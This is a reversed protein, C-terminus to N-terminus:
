HSSTKLTAEPNVTLRKQAQEALFARGEQTWKLHWKTIGVLMVLTELVLFAIILPPISASEGGAYSHLGSLLYNVGYYTMLVLPFVGISALALGRPNLWGAFRAHAVGLYGFWTILAWTEKPDWGWYRGWAEHAWVGGLITGAFIFLMTLQVSRYTANSLSLMRARDRPYLAESFLTAHGLLMALTACAYGILLVVVHINLWYSQLAPVLTDVGPSLGSRDNILLSLY